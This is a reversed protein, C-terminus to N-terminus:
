TESFLQFLIEPDRVGGIVMTVGRPMANIHVVNGYDALLCVVGTPGELLGHVDPDIMWRKIPVNAFDLQGM